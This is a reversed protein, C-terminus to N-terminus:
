QPLEGDAVKPGDSKPLVDSPGLTTADPLQTLAETVMDVYEYAELCHRRM